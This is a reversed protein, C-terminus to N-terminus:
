NLCGYLADIIRIGRPDGNLNTDMQNPIYGLSIRAAPDAFGMSGGWGSHGFAASNPGYWRKINNGFLGAAGWRVDAGLNMDIGEFQVQCAREFAAEDVYRKGEFMGGNAFPAYLRALGSACGHGNMAALEAQRFSKDNAIEPEILPNALTLELIETMDALSQTPPGYPPLLDAAMSLQEDALGIFYQAQLPGALEDNLVQSLTRGSVRRILEGCLFGWTWAHYGAITGPEWLPEAAAILGSIRDWDFLEPMTLPTKLGSLGAQHTLMTRVKIEAKGAAAFEPWYHSVKEDYDLLGQSELWVICLAAIGKTASYTNVLANKQWEQTRDPNTYGAYLDVVPVGQYTVYLSAGVDPCENSDDFNTLFATKVPAFDPSVNGHCPISNM